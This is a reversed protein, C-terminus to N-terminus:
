TWPILRRNLARIPTGVLGRRRLCRLGRPLLQLTGALLVVGPVLLTAGVSPLAECAMGAAFAACLMLGGGVMISRRPRRHRHRPAPRSASQLLVLSLLAFMTASTEPRLVHGAVAVPPLAAIL